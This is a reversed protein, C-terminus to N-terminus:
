LRDWALRKDNINSRSRGSCLFTKHGNKQLQKITPITSEPIQMKEDWLTGDIDFFISHVMKVRRM